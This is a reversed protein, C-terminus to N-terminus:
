HDLNFKAAFSILASRLTEKRAMEPNGPFSATEGDVIGNGSDSDDRPPIAEWRIMPDAAEDEYEVQRDTVFVYLEGDETLVIGRRWGGNQQEHILWGYALPEYTTTMGKRLLRPISLYEYLRLDVGVRDDARRAIDRALSLLARFEATAQDAARKEAARRQEAARVRAQQEAQQERALRRAAEVEAQLATLSGARRPGASPGAPPVAAPMTAPLASGASPPATRRSPAVGMERLSRSLEFASAPRDGPDKALLRQVLDDLEGPIGRNRPALRPPVATLHCRMVSAFSGSFPPEGVLLAYLTCGLSYLDTRADAVHGEYQEPAMFAPTGLLGGPATLQVSADAYRAIGFDCIKVRDDALYMLNAPKIDRHVVGKAHAYGLADAVQAVLGVTLGVPLGGPHDDLLDTFDRGDLLEMVFYPHGEFDGIDHVVTIGPHQLAAATRAEQRLRAILMPSSELDALVIKIAVQRGLGEDTASWVEGMGGRGLRRDLRYKGGLVSGAEL